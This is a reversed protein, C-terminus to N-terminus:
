GGESFWFTFCGTYDDAATTEQRLVLATAQRACPAWRDDPFFFDYPTNRENWGRDDYVRATGSTTGVTTDNTRVTAGWTAGGGADAPAALATVANGGSGVTWTAPMYRCTIRLNEEAADSVESTQGLCWGMLTIPLDDGAQGSFLDTDGGANTITGNLTVAYGRPM